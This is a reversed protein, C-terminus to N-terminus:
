RGRCWLAASIVGCVGTLCNILIDYPDFFRDPWFHQAIEDAFGTILVVFSAQITAKGSEVKRQAMRSCIGLCSFIVLHVLEVPMRIFLFPVSIVFTPAVMRLLVVKDFNTKRIKCILRYVPISVALCPIVMIYPMLGEVSLMSARNWFNLMPRGTPVFIFSLVIILRAALDFHNMDNRERALDHKSRAQIM